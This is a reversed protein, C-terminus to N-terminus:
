EENLPIGKYDICYLRVIEKIWKFVKEAVEQMSIAGEEIVVENMCEVILRKLENKTM